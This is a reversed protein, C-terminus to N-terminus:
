FADAAGVDSGAREGFFLVHLGARSGRNLGSDARIYIEEHENEEM